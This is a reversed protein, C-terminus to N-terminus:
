RKTIDTKVVNAGKSKQNSIKWNECYKVALPTICGDVMDATYSM